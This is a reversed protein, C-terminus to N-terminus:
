FDSILCFLVLVVAGARARDAQSHSVIVIFMIIRCLMIPPYMAVATLFIFHARVAYQLLSINGLLKLKIKHWYETIISYICYYGKGESLGQKETNENLYIDTLDCDIM